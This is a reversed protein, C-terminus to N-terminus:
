RGLAADAMDRERKRATEMATLIERGTPGMPNLINGTRPNTITVKGRGNVRVSYTRSGDESQVTWMGSGGHYAILKRSM